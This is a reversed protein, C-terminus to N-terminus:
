ETEPDLENIFYHQNIDYTKTRYEDPVAQPSTSLRTCAHTAAISYSSSTMSLLAFSQLLFSHVHASAVGYLTTSIRVVRVTCAHCGMGVNFDVPRDPTCCLTILMTISLSVRNREVSSFTHEPKQVSSRYESCVALTVQYSCVAAPPSMNRARSSTAWMHPAQCTFSVADEGKVVRGSGLVDLWYGDFVLIAAVTRAIGYPPHKMFGADSAMTYVACRSVPTMARPM